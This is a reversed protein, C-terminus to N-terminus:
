DVGLYTLSQGNEGKIQRLISICHSTMAKDSEDQSQTAYSVSMGQNSQSSIAGSIGTQQYTEILDVALFQLVEQNDKLIKDTIRNFAVEQMKSTARSLFRKFTAVEQITGGLKLYKDHDLLAM